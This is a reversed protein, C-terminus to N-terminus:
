LSFYELYDSFVAYIKTFQVLMNDDKYYTGNYIQM